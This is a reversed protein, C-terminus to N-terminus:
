VKAPTLPQVRAGSRRGTRSNSITDISMQPAFNEQRLQLGFPLNIM